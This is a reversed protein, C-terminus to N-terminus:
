AKGYDGQLISLESLGRLSDVPNLERIKVWHAAADEFRGTYFYANGVDRMAIPNQPDLHYAEEAESVMTETIGLTGALASLMLHAHSLNPNIELARTVERYLIGALDDGMFALEAREAHAEALDPDMAIAKEAASIGHEISNSWSIFGQTGLGIYARAIGVHARAFTPDIKLAQQFFEISKRLSPEDRNWMLSQGQLYALYAETQAPKDLTRVAVPSTGLSGPLATV